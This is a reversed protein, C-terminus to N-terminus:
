GVRLKAAQKWLYHPLPTNLKWRISMPKSGSHDEYVASGVFVYGM